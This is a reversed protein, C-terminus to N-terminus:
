NNNGISLYGQIAECHRYFASWDDDNHIADLNAKIFDVLVSPAKHCRVLALAKPLLEFAATQRAEFPLRRSKNRKMERLLKTFETPKMTSLIAAIQEAYDAVYVPRLYQKGNEATAYYGASLYDTPLMAPAQETVPEGTTINDFENM